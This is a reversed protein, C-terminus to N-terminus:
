WEESKFMVLIEGTVNIYGAVTAGNPTTQFKAVRDNPAFDDRYEFGGYKWLCNFDSDYLAFNKLVYGGSENIARLNSTLLNNGCFESVIERPIVRYSKLNPFLICATGSSGDNTESLWVVARGDVFPTISRMYYRDLVMNSQINGQKDIYCKEGNQKTVIAFGSHFDDPETSFIFDIVVKGTQDIFGWKEDWNQVAALGESFNHAQRYNPDIIIRGKENLFGYGTKYSWYKRTNESIGFFASQMLHGAGFKSQEIDVTLHPYVVNGKTNIYCFRYYRKGNQTYSNQIHAISDKFQTYAVVSSPMEYVFRGTKDYIVPTSYKKNPFMTGDIICVGSNYRPFEFERSDTDYYGNLIFDIVTNGKLDIAGWAMNDSSIRSYDSPKLKPNNCFVIGDSFEQLWHYIQGPNASCYITKTKESVFPKYIKTQPKQVQPKAQETPNDPASDAANTSGKNIAKDVNDLAKDIGKSLKDLWKQASVESAGFSLTLFSLLLVVKKKMQYFKQTQVKIGIM